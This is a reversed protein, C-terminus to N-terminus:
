KIKELLGNSLIKYNDMHSLRAIGTQRILNMM